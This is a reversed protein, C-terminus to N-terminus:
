IRRKNNNIENVYLNIFQYLDPPEIINNEM